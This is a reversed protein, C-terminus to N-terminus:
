IGLLYLKSMLCTESYKHYNLFFFNLSKGNELIITIKCGIGILSREIYIQHTNWNDLSQVKETDAM